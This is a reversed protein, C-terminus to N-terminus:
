ALGALYERARILSRLCFSTSITSSAFTRSQRMSEDKTVGRPMVLMRFIDVKIFDSPSWNGGEGQCSLLFRIGRNVCDHYLSFRSGLFTALLAMATEAPTSKPEGWGGDENQTTNIFQLARELSPAVPDIAAIMRSCVYTGYYKGCYWSSNWFGGADQQKVLYTAGRHIVDDFRLRDYVYLGYLMNAVVEVDPDTGWHTQMNHKIEISHPDEPDAIWTDLSGNLHSNHNILLQVPEECVERAKEDNAKTIVQVIQGLDDADAPLTPIRPFYSWGTRVRALKAAVITEIEQKIVERDPLVGGTNAELLADLILARGFVDGWQCYGEETVDGEGRVFELHRAEPYDEKQQDLLFRIAAAIAQRLSKENVEELFGAVGKADHRRSSRVVTSKKMLWERIEALDKQLGKVAAQTKRIYGIWDPCDQDEISRVAGTFFGYAENLFKEALGSFYLQKGVQTVAMESHPRGIGPSELVKSLLYSYRKTRYDARWDILDDYLQCGIAYQDQSETIMELKDESRSLLALATPIIKALAQKGKAIQRMESELYPTLINQHKTKELLVAAAHEHNYEQLYSWFSSSPKFVRQFLALAHRLRHEYSLLALHYEVSPPKIQCDMLKDLIIISEAYLQGAVAIHILQERLPKRFLTLFLFPYDHYKVRMAIPDVMRDYQVHLNPISGNFGVNSSLPEYFLSIVRSCERKVTEIDQAFKTYVDTM